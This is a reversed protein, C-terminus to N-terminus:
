RDMEILDEVLEKWVKQVKRARRIRGEKWKRLRGPHRRLYEEQYQNRCERHWCQTFNPSIYLNGLSDYEGCFQCKRWNAHGCAILAKTRMHLLCHYAHDECIVLNSNNYNFTNGDIHHVEAGPSLPKGLVGEVIERTKESNHANNGAFDSRVYQYEM